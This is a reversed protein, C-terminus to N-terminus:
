SGPFSGSTSACSKRAATSVAYRRACGPSVTVSEGAHEDNSKNLFKASRPSVKRAMTSSRCYICPDCGTQMAHCPPTSHDMRSATPTRSNMTRRAEPAAHRRQQQRQSHKAAGRIHGHRHQLEDCLKGYISGAIEHLQLDVGGDTRGHRLHAAFVIGVARVCVPRDRSHADIGLAHPLHGREHELM